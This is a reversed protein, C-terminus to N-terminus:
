EVGRYFHGKTLGQQQMKELFVAGRSGLTENGKRLYDLTERYAEITEKVEESDEITFDLRIKRIGAKYLEPIHGLLCLKQSNLLHTRCSEDTMIPFIKGLRDKLGFQNNRCRSCNGEKQKPNMVAEIPCYEMVMLMLYGQVVVECPIKSNEIIRRVQKLTLEPSLTTEKVGLEGLMTLSASNFVNLFYDTYITSKKYKIAAKLVGLNGALIPMEQGGEELLSYASKMDEMRTIRSFAPILTVGADRALDTAQKVTSLQRYYIRDVKYELAAQLQKISSISIHLQMLHDAKQGRRGIWDKLTSSSFQYQERKAHHKERIRNMKEVAERRLQNLQGIPIAANPDLVMELHELQYVTGGLKAIQEYIREEAIATKLAKEVIYEGEHHVYRQEDDWIDLQLPQGVVAKLHGYISIRKERGQYSERARKLLSVDTTKYVSFKGQVMSKFPIEIIEGSKGQERKDGNHFIAEVIAGSNEEERTWIEIGDGKTLDGSLKLKLRRKNKDYGLTEGIYVGRNSPKELSMLRHGRDGFLYGRTFKRNFIQTVDQKVDSGLALAVGKEMYQDIAKRYAGVITAVYEPRKMRGEIKLSKVGSSLLRDVYELTNLDRPSLLYAGFDSKIQQGNRMNILSYTMRCTQACRGRNGSRGGIMSSMLCQGSYSVCLAGHVFIELDVNAAEQIRRVEEIPMERALVVRKFGLQALLEVGELNHVSMQTSAHLEFDPFFDRVFKAVGLDQVIIADVDHNYLFTIYKGLEEFEEDGILTNVTVFVQVGRIHCYAVARKLEEEDFNGASQRANFAKGGLYVADAGNQVAAELAEWSGVPALLEVQNM